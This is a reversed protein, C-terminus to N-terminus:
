AAYKIFGMISEISFLIQSREKKRRLTYMYKGMPIVVIIFILLTLIIQLM